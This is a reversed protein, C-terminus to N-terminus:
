VPYVIFHDREIRVPAEGAEAVVEALETLVDPHLQLEHEDPHRADGMEYDQGPTNTLEIHAGLVWEVPNGDAVFAALRAVSARFAPWDFVYLRGPYLSDGSLLLRTDRDYVALHSAHHGPIALADLVRGGLDFQVVGNPWDAFGFYAAVEEASRGVPKDFEGDGGVHDGHGHTHAIVLEREGALEEILPRLPVHGTGTDLLLAREEGLLLYLFPGEFNTRLSQRIIATREDYWHVQHDPSSPDTGDDWHSPFTMRYNDTAAPVSSLHSVIRRHQM